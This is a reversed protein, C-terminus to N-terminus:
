STRFWHFTVALWSKANNRTHCSICLMQEQTFKIQDRKVEALFANQWGDTWKDAFM